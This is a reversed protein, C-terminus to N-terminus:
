GRAGAYTMALSASISYPSFFLNGPQDKLRQYLDLAFATNGDVTSKVGPTVTFPIPAAPLNAIITWVLIVAGLIGAGYRVARQQRPSVVFRALGAKILRTIQFILFGWVSAMIALGIPLGLIVVFDESHGLVAGLIGVLVMMLIEVPYHTIVTFNRVEVQLWCEPLLACLALLVAEFLLGWLFLRWWRRAKSTIAKKSSDPAAAPSQPNCFDLPRKDVACVLAEDPYEKGCYTCKKM